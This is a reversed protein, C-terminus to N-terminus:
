NEVAVKCVSPFERNCDYNMWKKYSSDFIQLCNNGPVTNPQFSRFNTYKWASGDLWTWRGNRLYGGIWIDSGLKQIRNNQAEIAHAVFDSEEQSLISVLHGRQATCYEEAATWSVRKHNVIYIHGNSCPYTQGACPDVTTTTTPITTTTSTTTPTTTTTPPSTTTTTPVTTTPPSTTTTTTTPEQTTTTSTPTETTTAETTTTVTPTTSPVPTITTTTAPRKTIECVFPATNSCYTPLWLGRKGAIFLCSWRPDFVANRPFNTFTFPAGNIWSWTWPRYTGGLWFSDGGVEKFLSVAKSTVLQNEQASQISALHGGLNECKKEAGNFNLLETEFHFCQEGANSNECLKRASFAPSALALLGLLFLM